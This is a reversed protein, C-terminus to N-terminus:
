GKFTKVHNMIPPRFAEREGRSMAASATSVFNGSSLHAGSVCETRVSRMYSRCDSPARIDKCWTSGCFVPNLQQPMRAVGAKVRGDRRQARELLATVPRISTTRTIAPVIRAGDPIQGLSKCFAVIKRM